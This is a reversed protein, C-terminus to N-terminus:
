AINLLDFGYTQAFAAPLGHLTVTVFPATDPRANRALRQEWSLRWHARQPRTSILEPPADHQLSTPLAGMTVEVTQSHVIKIWHRRIQCRPWDRWLVPRCAPPEPPGLLPASVLDQHPSLPWYVASVRRPKITLLSEQCQARLLCTRCDGIRAAYLVRLSGDREPRREQPYLGHGAPCLLTGDPQPIFASGPFGRTFSRHAWQPPGYVLGNASPPGDTPEPGNASPPGDTPEPGNASAFETTRPPTPFLNHGLELRLNWVWQHIIQWFEQGQPTHSCWRDPDQEGDEDALVTEFSGRHLYLELVDKATFAPAALTSVFLEYILGDRKKGIKHPTTTVPHAAIILRVPPGDPTLHLNPCDYLSRVVGSEPHTSVGVPPCALVAQVEPRDLLAYDRGRVLLGLGSKLVVTIVAANGYEGDLRSGSRSRSFSINNPMVPRWWVPALWNGVITVM